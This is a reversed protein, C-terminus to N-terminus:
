PPGPRFAARAGAATATVVGGAIGSGVRGAVGSRSSFVSMRPTGTGAKTGAVPRRMRSTAPEIASVTTLM